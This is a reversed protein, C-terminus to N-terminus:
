GMRVLAGEGALVEALRMIEAALEARDGGAMSGAEDIVSKLTRRGTLRMMVDVAGASGSVVPRGRAGLTITAEAARWGSEAPGVVQVARVDDAIKWRSSMMVDSRASSDRDRGQGPQAPMLGHLTERGELMRHISVGGADIWASDADVVDFFGPSGRRVVMAGYSIKDIGLAAYHWMWRDFLEYFARENWGPQGFMTHRIWMSAYEDVAQTDTRIVLTQMGGPAWTSLRERWDMRPAHGWNMLMVMVGGETLLKPAEGALTRCFEDGFRGETARSSDSGSMGTLTVGGDRYSLDSQPSIVFPPNSVILDFREGAVPDTLSGCRFKAHGIGNLRANFAAFSLARENIDTGVVERAISAARLGLFGCGCGLDLARDPRGPSACRGTTSANIWDGMALRALSASSRGVGMVHDRVYEAPGVPRRSFDAALVLDEFPMLAIAAEIHEIGAHEGEGQPVRRLLGGAVAEDIGLPALVEAAKAREVTGGVVFMRLLTHIPTEGKTRSMALPGSSLDVFGSASIGLVEQVRAHTYQARELAVRLRDAIAASLPEAM